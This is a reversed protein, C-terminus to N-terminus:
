GQKLGALAAAIQSPLAEPNDWDGLDVGNPVYVYKDPDMGRSCMHEKAKPLMSVVVDAHRYAFDEAWQVWLIFPHWRSMGGLEIPSLPWLDHVEFVLKAGALRSIRAAPWIDMPYTSSAIVVDPEFDQALRAADKWLSRLFSLMNRVRGVGNGSHAPTKYWRYAIGQTDEDLVVGILTPQNARIHSYSAAVIQVKHASRVWERAMYFPRFEMGHYPSGAYHNILLINV